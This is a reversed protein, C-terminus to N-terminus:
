NSPAWDLGGHDGHPDIRRLQTGDINMRYFGNYGMIVMEKGDPAFAVMPLDEYFYTLRRLGSGDINVIWLDWPAGHAEAAPPELLGLLQEFPGKTTKIPFGQDDTEPGEIAAVVIQSGDPTFRPAYFGLFPGGDIVRAPNTGDLEAIELHMTVGDDGFKLYAMHSGDAAITPDLAGTVITTREGTALDVRVVALRSETDEDSAASYTTNAMLYISQGDPTWSPLWLIGEAPAWLERLDSGDANILFLKSAPLPVTATIPPEILAVFAIQEGDPSFAPQGAYVGPDFTTLQQPPAGSGDSRWIQRERAFVLPPM